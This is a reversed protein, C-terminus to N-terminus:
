GRLVLPVPFFAAAFFDAAGFFVAEALFVALARCSGAFVAVPVFRAARLDM